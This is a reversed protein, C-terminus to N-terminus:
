DLLKCILGAVDGEFAREVADAAEDHQVESESRSARYRLPKEGGGRVVLGKRLMRTLLTAVTSPALGREPLLSAHVEAASAEGQRWLVRLIALQLDTLPPTM